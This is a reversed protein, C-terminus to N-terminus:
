LLLIVLTAGGALGLYRWMKENRQRQERATELAIELHQLTLGVQKLQGEQDSVGLSVGLSAVIERDAPTLSSRPYMEAVASDWIEKASREDGALLNAAAAGYLEDLPPELQRAVAQFAYPLLARNFSIEVSLLKLSRQFQELQKVRLTLARAKSEGFTAAAAMICLSGALKCTLAIM